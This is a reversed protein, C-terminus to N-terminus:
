RTRRASSSSGKNWREFFSEIHYIAVSPIQMEHFSELDEVLLAVLAHTPSEATLDGAASVSEALNSCCEAHTSATVVRIRGRTQWMECMRIAPRAEACLNKNADLKRLVFSPIVAILSSSNVLPCVTKLRQLLVDYDLVIYVPMWQSNLAEKRVTETHLQAMKRQLEVTEATPGRRRFYGAFEIPATDVACLKFAWHATQRIARTDDTISAGFLLWHIEEDADEVTRMAKASQNLQHILKDILSHFVNLFAAPIPTKKMNKLSHLQPSIYVLWECIAALIWGGQINVEQERPLDDRESESQDSSSSDRSRSDEEHDSESIVRRRRIRIVEDDDKAEESQTIVVKDILPLYCNCLLTVCGIFADENGGEVALRSSLSLILLLSSLQLNLLPDNLSKIAEVLRIGESDLNSRSYSVLIIFPISLAFSSIPDNIKQEFTKKLNDWAKQFPRRALLALLFLRVSNVPTENIALQNFAQGVDADMEVARRYYVVSLSSQEANTLYRHLDGLFLNYMAAHRASEALMSQLEGCFVSVMVNFWNTDVNKQKRLKMLPEYYATKWFLELAQTNEDSEDLESLIRRLKKRISVSQSSNIGEQDYVKRLVLCYKGVREM